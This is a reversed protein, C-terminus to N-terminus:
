LKLPLVAFICFGPVLFFWAADSGMYAVTYLTQEM